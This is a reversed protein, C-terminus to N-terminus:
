TVTLDDIVERHTEIFKEKLGSVRILEWRKIIANANKLEVAKHNVRRIQFDEVTELVIDLQKATEPLKYLVNYLLPLKGIRRGIENKTVRILKNSNEYLIEIAALEVEKAIQHDREKWNIREHKLISTKNVPSHEHLWERDHRYLWTYVAQNRKRLETVSLESNISILENWEEKYRIIEQEVADLAPTIAKNDLIRSVVTKPDCGLRKAMERISLDQQSLIKLKENWVEGFNKIRGIKFHDDISNDPGKRSYVFGCTCSFTVVPQRTKSCRTIECTSIVPDKYHNAAKNLCPWPGKGFPEYSIKTDSIQNVMSEITEGLFRLVLLHRLPHCTVRPKRLLKHLWTAEQSPDIHSQLRMLFKGGFFQSFAPILDAWRIRGTHSSLGRHQLKSVYFQNIKDLGFPSWNNSLLLNTQEAIFKLDNFTEPPVLNYQLDENDLASELSMFEHRNRQKAHILNTTILANPHYNCVLVGEAQHTRHWYAEGYLERDRIVCAPCYKLGQQPKVTSAPKGLLMYVSTGKDLMMTEKMELNRKEPIFPTYYPLFTHDIILEETSLLSGSPMRDCLSKLHSPFLLSACVRLDGFLDEMTLKHNENGSDRHYRSLASYLIEDPFLSPFFIM